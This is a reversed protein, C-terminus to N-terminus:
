LPDQRDRYDGPARYRALTGGDEITARPSPRGNFPYRLATGVPLVAIKIETIRDILKELDGEIVPVYVRCGGEIVTLKVECIIEQGTDLVLRVGEPQPASM